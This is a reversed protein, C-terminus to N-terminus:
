DTGTNEFWVWNVQGHHRSEDIAADMPDDKAARRAAIIAAASLGFYAMFFLLALATFLITDASLLCV